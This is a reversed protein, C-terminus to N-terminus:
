RPLHGDAGRAIAAVNLHHEALLIVLPGAGVSRCVEVVELPLAIGPFGFESFDVTTV